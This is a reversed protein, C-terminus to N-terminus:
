FFFNFFLNKLIKLYNKEWNKLILKKHKLSVTHMKCPELKVEYLTARSLNQLLVNQLYFKYNITITDLM